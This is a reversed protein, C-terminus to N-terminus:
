PLEEDLDDNEDISEEEEVWSEDNLEPDSGRDLLDDPPQSGDQPIWRITPRPPDSLADACKMATWNLNGPGDATDGEEVEEDGQLLYLSASRLFGEVESPQYDENHYIAEL